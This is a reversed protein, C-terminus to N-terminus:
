QSAIGSAVADLGFLICLQFVVVRSEKSISPILSRRQKKPIQEGAVATDETDVLLPASESVSQPYQLDAEISKSLACALLFKVFGIAAYIYFISRYADVSDWGSERLQHIIWGSVITGVATGAYGIM